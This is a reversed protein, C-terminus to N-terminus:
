GLHKSGWLLRVSLALLPLVVVCTATPLAMVLDHAIGTKALWQWALHRAQEGVVPSAGGAGSAAAVAMEAARVTAEPDVMLGYPRQLALCWFGMSLTWALSGIALASWRYGRAAALVWLTAVALLLYRFSVIDLPLGPPLGLSEALSAIM